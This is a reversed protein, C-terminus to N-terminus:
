SRNSRTDSASRGRIKVRPAGPEMPAMSLRCYQSCDLISAPDFWVAVGPLTATNELM